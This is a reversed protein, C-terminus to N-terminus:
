KGSILVFVADNKLYANGVCDLFFINQRMLEEAIPESVYESVILMPFNSKSKYQYLEAQQIVYDLVSRTLNPKIETALLKKEGNNNAFKLFCDVMNNPEEFIESVLEFGTNQHFLYLAKDLVQKEKEIM